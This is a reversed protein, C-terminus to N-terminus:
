TLGQLLCSLLCELRQVMHRWFLQPKGAQMHLLFAHRGFMCLYATTHRTLMCAALRMDWMVAMKLHMTRTRPARQSFRRNNLVNTWCAFYFSFGNEVLSTTTHMIFSRSDDISHVSIPYDSWLVFSCRRGIVKVFWMHMTRANVNLEGRRVTFVAFQFLNGAVHLLHFHFRSSDVVALYHLSVRRRSMFNFFYGFVHYIPCQGRRQRGDCEDSPLMGCCIVHSFAPPNM